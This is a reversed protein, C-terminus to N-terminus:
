APRADPRIIPLNGCVPRDHEPPQILSRPTPDAAQGTLGLGGPQLRQEEHLVSMNWHATHSQQILLMMLPVMM